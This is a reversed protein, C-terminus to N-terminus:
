KQRNRRRCYMFIGYSTAALAAIAAAIWALRGNKPMADIIKRVPANCVEAAEQVSEKVPANALWSKPVEFDHLHEMCLERFKQERLEPPIAKSRVMADAIQGAWQYSGKIENARSSICAM